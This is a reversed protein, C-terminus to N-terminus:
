FNEPTTVAQWVKDVQVYKYYKAIKNGIIDQFQVLQKAVALQERYCDAPPLGILCTQLEDLRYDQQRIRVLVGHTLNPATM